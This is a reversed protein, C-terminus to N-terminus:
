PTAEFRAPRDGCPGLTITGDTGQHRHVPQFLLQSRVECPATSHWWRGSPVQVAPQQCATCHGRTM